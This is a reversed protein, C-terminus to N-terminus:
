TRCGGAWRTTASTSFIRIASSSLKEETELFAMLEDVERTPPTASARGAKSRPVDDNAGPEPPLCDVFLFKANEISAPTPSPKRLVRRVLSVNTQDILYRGGKKWRVEPVYLFEWPFSILQLESTPFELILRLETAGEWM